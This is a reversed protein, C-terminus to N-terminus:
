DLLEFKLERLHIFKFRHKKRIHDSIAGRSLGYFDGAEQLSPFIQGTNICRVQKKLQTGLPYRKEFGKKVMLKIFEKDSRTDPHQGRFVDDKKEYRGILGTYDNIPERNIKM